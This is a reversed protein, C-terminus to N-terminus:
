QQHGASPYQSYNQPEYNPPPTHQHHPFAPSQDYARDYARFAPPMAFSPQSYKLGSVDSIAERCFPCKPAKDGGSPPTQSPLLKSACDQCCMHQCPVLVSDKLRQRCIDCMNQPLNPLTPPGGYMAGGGGYAQPPYQPQGAAAAFPAPAPSEDKTLKKTPPKGYNIKIALDGIRRGQMQNLAHAADAEHVFNVFACTKHRLLRVTEIPGFPEFERQLDPETVSEDINGIWLSRTAPNLAIAGDATVIEGNADGDSPASGNSSSSGGVQSEKRYNIVIYQSGIVTGQLAKRANKASDESEYNVFACFRDHLIRISEIKGHPGFENILEQESVDNGINGVWLIRNPVENEDSQGPPTQGQAGSSAEHKKSLLSMAPAPQKPQQPSKQGAKKQPRQASKQASRPMNQSQSPNYMPRHSQQQGQGSYYPPYPPYQQGHYQQGGYGNYPQSHPYGYQGQYPYPPYQQGSYQQPYGPYNQPSQQYSSSSPQQYNSSSPSSNQGYSAGSHGGAHGSSSSSSPAFSQQGQQQQQPYSPQQQSSPAYQQQQQQGYSAAPSGNGNQSTGYSAAQGGFASSSPSTYAPKSAPSQLPSTHPVLPSRESSPQKHLLAAEQQQKHQLALLQQFKNQEREYVDRMAKDRQEQESPQPGASSSPPWPPYSASVSFNPAGASPYSASISFSGGGDEQFHKMLTDNEWIKDVAAASPADLSLSALGDGFRSMFDTDFVIGRPSTADRSTSLARGGGVVKAADISTRGGGVIKTSGGNSLSSISGSSEM